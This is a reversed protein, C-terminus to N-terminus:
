AAGGQAMERRDEAEWALLRERVTRFTVAVETGFLPDAGVVLGAEIAAWDAPDLLREALPFFHEEEMRMHRREFAVFRLASEVVAERPIDTEGLLDGVTRRFRRARDHAVKHEGALDAVAAAEDPHTALLRTAIADEQPHHCLIPYDIFYEAVGAVVDYDPTGGAAFVGIQRELADLLRATNGHDELLTELLTTM